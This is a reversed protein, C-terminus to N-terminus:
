GGCDCTCHGGVYIFVLIWNKNTDFKLTKVEATLGNAIINMFENDGDERHVCAVFDIPDTHLHKFVLLQAIERLQTRSAKTITRSTKQAKSVAEVHESM